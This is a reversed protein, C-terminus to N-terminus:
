SANGAEKVFKELEIVDEKLQSIRVTGGALNNTNYAGSELASQVLDQRLVEAEIRADDDM